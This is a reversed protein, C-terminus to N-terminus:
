TTRLHAAADPWSGRGELQRRPLRRGRPPLMHTHPPGSRAARRRRPDGGPLERAAQARSVCRCPDACNPFSRRAARPGRAPSRRPVLRRQHCALTPMRRLEAALDQVRDGLLRGQTDLVVAHHTRGHTDVGGIVVRSHNPMSLHGKREVVPCSLCAGAPSSHDLTKMPASAWGPPHFHHQRRTVDACNPTTLGILLLVCSGRAGRVTAVLVCRLNQM